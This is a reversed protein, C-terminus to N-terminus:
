ALQERAAQASLSRALMLVGVLATLFALDGLLMWRYFPLAMWYCETLGDLTKQYYPTFAWVAFNTVVYFLTAPVFGCFALHMARKWGQAGRAARGLALPVLTMAYVAAHVQWHPYAPLLLNSVTLISVPLLVAPLLQRFYYAGLVTVAALPTVNWAMQYWRGVVGIALLLAFVTLERLNDRNVARVSYPELKVADSAVSPTM